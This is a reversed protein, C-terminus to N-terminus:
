AEYKISSNVVKCKAEWVKVCEHCKGTAKRHARYAPHKKCGHAIINLLLLQENKTIILNFNIKTLCYLVNGIKNDLILFAGIKEIAKRSRINNYGIDFFVKEVYKFAHNLMILKIQYNANSGWYERILFTFGLKISNEKPDYSYFRSSGIIKNNSKDIILYFGLKEKLGNEFFIKFKEEKWRDKEPHQEWIKPDKAVNHLHYFQDKEIQKLKYSKNELNLETKM